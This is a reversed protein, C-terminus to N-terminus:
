YTEQNEGDHKENELEDYMKDIIEHWRRRFEEIPILEEESKNNQDTYHDHFTDKLDQLAEEKTKM